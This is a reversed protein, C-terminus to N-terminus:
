PNVFKNPYKGVVGKEKYYQRIKDVDSQADDSLEFKIGRGVTKTKWDFYGLYLPVNAAKCIKYFGLKWRTVPRRTGEPAIALHLVDKQNFAEIMQLVLQAGAGATRNVPVAGLHLLLPKLPGKFFEKKIMVSAKGGVSTYYLYSIIFDWISTHPVGLIVCKPEPVPPEIAKWGLLHLFFAATKPRM